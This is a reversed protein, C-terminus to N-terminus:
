PEDCARPCENIRSDCALTATEARSVHSQGGPWRAVQGGSAVVPWWNCVRRQAERLGKRGKRVSAYLESNTAVMIFVTVDVFGTANRGVFRPTRIEPVDVELARTAVAIRDVARSSSAATSVPAAVAAFSTHLVHPTGRLSIGNPHSWDPRIWPPM